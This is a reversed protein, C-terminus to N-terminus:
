TACYNADAAPSRVPLEIIEFVWDVDLGIVRHARIARSRIGSRMSAICPLDLLLFRM